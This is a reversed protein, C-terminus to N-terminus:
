VTNGKYANKRILEFLVSNHWLTDVCMFGNFNVITLPHEDLIVTIETLAFNTRTKVM